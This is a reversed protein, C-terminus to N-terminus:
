IRTIVSCIVAVASAVNLSEVHKEMTNGPPITIRTQILPILESSIGRSENGFVVLGKGSPPLGYVPTGETFTGYVPFEPAAQLMRITDPLGTYHIKMRFLAGMSAQVAKPNFCDACGENCLINRINFWEATRIITGLNGPDQITDLALSWSGGLESYDLTMDPMDMVALVMPPTEMSTIREMDQFDAEFVDDARGTLDIKTNSLWNGTAILQRIQLRSDKLIDGVIKDGEAIFQGSQTRFKKM